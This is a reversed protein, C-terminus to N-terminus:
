KQTTHFNRCSHRNKLYFMSNMGLGAFYGDATVMDNFTSEDVKQIDYVLLDETFITKLLTNPFTPYSDCFYYVLHTRGYARDVLANAKVDKVGLFSFVSGFLVAVAMALSICMRKIKYM